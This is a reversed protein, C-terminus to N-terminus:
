FTSFGEGYQKKIEKEKLGRTHPEDSYDGREKRIQDSRKQNELSKEVMPAYAGSFLRDANWNFSITLLVILSAGLFILFLKQGQSM